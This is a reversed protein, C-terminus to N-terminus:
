VQEPSIPRADARLNFSQTHTHLEKRHEFGVMSLWIDLQKTYAMEVDAANQSFKNQPM